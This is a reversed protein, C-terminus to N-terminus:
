HSFLHGCLSSADLRSVGPAPTIPPQTSPILSLDHALLTGVSGDRFDEQILYISKVLLHM